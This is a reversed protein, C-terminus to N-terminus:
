KDEAPEPASLPCGGEWNWASLLRAELTAFFLRLLGVPDLSRGYGYAFLCWSPQRQDGFLVDDALEAQLRPHTAQFVECAVDAMHEPFVELFYRADHHCSLPCYFHVLLNEGQPGKFTHEALFTAYATWLHLPQAQSTLAQTVEESLHQKADDTTTM